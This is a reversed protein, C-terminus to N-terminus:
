HHPGTEHGHGGTGTGEGKLYREPERDFARKCGRCCFYYTKGGYESRESVDDRVDMGCVPDRPM